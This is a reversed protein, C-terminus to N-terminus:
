ANASAKKRGRNSRREATMLGVVFGNSSKRVAVEKGAEQAARLLRQRVTIPKEERGLRVEFVTDADNLQGMLKTFQRQQQQRERQAPTLEKAAARTPAPRDMVSVDVKRIKVM